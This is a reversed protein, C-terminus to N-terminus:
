NEKKVKAAEHPRGKYTGTIESFDQPKERYAGTVISLQKQLAEYFTNIGTTTTIDPALTKIVSMIKEPELDNKFTYTLTCSGELIFTCDTSTVKIGNVKRINVVFEDGLRVLM